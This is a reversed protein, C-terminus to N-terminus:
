KGLRLELVKSLFQLHPSSIGFYKRASWDYDSASSTPYSTPWTEIREDQLLM